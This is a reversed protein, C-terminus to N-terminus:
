RHHHAQGIPLGNGDRDPLARSRRSGRHIVIGVLPMRRDAVADGPDRAAIVFIQHGIGRGDASRHGINLVGGGDRQRRRRAHSLTSLDHVRRRQGISRLRWHGHGQAIALGNGNSGVLGSAADRDGRMAIVGIEIGALDAGADGSGAPTVEFVNGDVARRRHGGDGIGDVGRGHAQGGRRRHGLTPGDDVGGRHGCRDSARGDHYSQCIPLDDGDRDPLAGTSGRAGHGIVDIL